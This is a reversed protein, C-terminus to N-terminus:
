ALAADLKALQREFFGAEGQEEEGEQTENAAVTEGAATQAPAASVEQRQETKEPVSHHDQLAFQVAWAKMGELERVYFEETFKVKRVKLAKALEDTVTYIKLSGDAATEQAIEILQTLLEPEIFPILLSVSLVKPKFGKHSTSTASSQGSLDGSDIRMSMSVKLEKNPVTFNDLMM